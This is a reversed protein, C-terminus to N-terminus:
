SWTTATLVIFLVVVCLRRASPCDSKMNFFGYSWIYSLPYHSPKNQTHVTNYSSLVLNFFFFFLMILQGRPSGAFGLFGIELQQTTLTSMLLVWCSQISEGCMGLRHWMPSPFSGPNPSKTQIWNGGSVLVGHINKKSGKSCICEVM